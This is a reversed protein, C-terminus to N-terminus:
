IEFRGAAGLVSRLSPWQEETPYFRYKYAEQQM